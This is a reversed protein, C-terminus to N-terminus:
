MIWDHPFHQPQRAAMVVRMSRSLLSVVSLGDLIPDQCRYQIVRAKEVLGLEILADAASLPVIHRPNARAPFLKLRTQLAGGPSGRSWRGRAIEANDM